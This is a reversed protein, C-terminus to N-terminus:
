PVRGTTPSAVAARTAREPVVHGHHPKLDRGRPRPARRETAQKGTSLEGATAIIPGGDTTSRPPDREDVRNAVHLPRSKTPM